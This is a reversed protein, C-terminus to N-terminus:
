QDAVVEGTEKSTHLTSKKSPCRNVNGASLVAPRWARATRGHSHNTM